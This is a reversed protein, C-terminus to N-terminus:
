NLLEFEVRRNEAKGEESSNDSKAMNEGWGITALRSPDIDFNSTLFDKVSDARRESLIHNYAEPGSSDTHGNIRFKSEVLDSSVFASGINNLLDIASHDLQASNLDFKISVALSSRSIGSRAPRNFHTVIDLPSLTVSERGVITLPIMASAIMDGTRTLDEILNPILSEADEARIGSFGGTFVLSAFEPKRKTCIAYLSDKGLPPTIQIKGSIPFVKGADRSTLQQYNQMISIDGGSEIWIITVFCDQKVGFTFGIQSGVSVQMSEAGIVQLELVESDATVRNLQEAVYEKIEAVTETASIAPSAAGLLGLVVSLLYRKM